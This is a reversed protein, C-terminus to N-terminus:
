GALRFDSSGMDTSEAQIHEDDIDLLGMDLYARSSLWEESYEMCLTCILRLVSAENPFVRIVRDRRRIEENLREIANNTRIREQHEEPFALVSLCQEIDDEVMKSVRPALRHWKEAVAFALEMATDKAEADFIASIDEGLEKRHKCAVKGLADRMFHVQCRQWAAGQFYRKIAAKLGAHADSTVLRVGGIGREKLSCFLDNYTAASETDAVAVDLIERVGDDRVGSAILIGESVVEDGARVNEYLADVFLYPYAHRSLDRSRWADVQVDLSKCLESVTSKSFTVSSLAETIEAVKRNSVGNLWMEIIALTFARESRQYREFLETHFGGDRTQPVRLHICGVKLNLTRPKYGNRLGTRGESREYPEAGLYETRELELFEQLATEVISRVFEGSDILVTQNHKNTLTFNWATM